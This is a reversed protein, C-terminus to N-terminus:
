SARARIREKVQLDATIWGARNMIRVLEDYVPGSGQPDSITIVLAASQTHSSLFDGRNFLKILLRWDKGQVRKLSRRYVKVPSWKFGHEVLYREYRESIDAPELPIQKKHHRAGQSDRDYIGLSAEVNRRCYESGFSADLPPEYVLTMVIDARVVDGPGRLCGPIPFPWKELEMGPLLEPELVLTASHNECTIITTLDKPVGFGRYRLKESKLLKSDLVASHVLLAKILNRSPPEIFADGVNALLSAVIPTSFSTGINEAIYGNASLSIVGTQAYNGRSDCNGGYHTLEPKPLFVPGPGRRSFPSPDEVRVRSSPRHIHALSGVTIGRVSDAPACIRDAEGCDEPPWGRFPPTDYNGAALVFSVGYEDQLRDLAIAMDSFSNNGCIRNPNALSFNWVRVERNQKLVDELIILLEDESITGGKPIAAIDIIKASVGPFRVDNGNLNKSHVILGAVFTGHGHDRLKKPVFEYKAAIWPELLKNEPDIGSDILGVLPYETNRKPPPFDTRQAPRLPISETHLLGYRPFVSLSQTGIFEALPSLTENDANNIRFIRMGPAYYVEKSVLGLQRTQRKFAKLILDDLAADGHYFLRMKLVTTARKLPVLGQLGLVDSLGYPKIREITSIDAIGTKTSTKAIKQALRHLGNSKVSVLLEGIGGVGIIPCTDYSLLNSPRHSKALAKEKLFVQAVGPVGPYQNFSSSFHQEVIELQNVLLSRTEQGVEGFVKREGGGAEPSIFDKAEPIVIKIPLRIPDDAM